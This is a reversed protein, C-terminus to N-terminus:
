DLLKGTKLEEPIKYECLWDGDEGQRIILGTEEDLIKMLQEWSMGKDTVLSMTDDLGKLAQTLRKQGFGFTRHLMLAVGTYLRNFGMDVGDILADQALILRLQECTQKPIGYRAQLFAFATKSDRFVANKSAM